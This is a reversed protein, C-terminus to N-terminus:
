PQAEAARSARWPLYLNPLTWRHYSLLWLDVQARGYHHGLLADEFYRILFL